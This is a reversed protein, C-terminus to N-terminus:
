RFIARARSASPKGGLLPLGHHPLVIRRMRFRAAPQRVGCFNLCYPSLHVPRICMGVADDGASAGRPRTEVVRM